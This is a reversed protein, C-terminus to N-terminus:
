DHIMDISSCIISQNNREMVGNQQPNYSITLDRKIWAEKTYIRSTMPPTNDGM